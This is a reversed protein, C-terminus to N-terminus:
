IALRYFDFGGGGTWGEINSIGGDEGDVVQCMRHACHSVVHADEEIGIYHRRMKHAVATTTGSGLYADLVIDSSNTAILLIRRILQEPKPTDFLPDNPFLRLM